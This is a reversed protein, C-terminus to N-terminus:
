ALKAAVIAAIRAVSTLKDIDEISLRIDFAEEIAAILRIHGLSDWAKVDERVLNPSFEFEADEFIDAFVRQLTSLIKDNSM